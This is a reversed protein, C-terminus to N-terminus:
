GADAAECAIPWLGGGTVQLVGATLGYVGEFLTVVHVRAVDGDYNMDQYHFSFELENGSAEVATITALDRPDDAATSYGIDGEIKFRASTVAYAGSSYRLDYRVTAPPDGELSHCTHEEGAATGGVLAFFAAPILRRLM